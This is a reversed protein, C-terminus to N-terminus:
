LMCCGGFALKMFFASVDYKSTVGYAAERSSDSKSVGPALLQAQAQAMSVNHQSVRTYMGSQRADRDRKSSSAATSTVGGGSGGVGSDGNSFDRKLEKAYGASSSLYPNTQVELSSKGGTQQQLAQQPQQSLSQPQPQQSQSQSLVLSEHKSAGSTVTGSTNGNVGTLNQGFTTRSSPASMAIVAHDLNM